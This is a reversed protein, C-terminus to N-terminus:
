IDNHMSLFLYFYMFIFNRALRWHLIIFCAKTQLFLYFISFWLPLFSNAWTISQMSNWYCTRRRWKHSSWWYTHWWYGKRTCWVAWTICTASFVCGLKTELIVIENLTKRLRYHKSKLVCLLCFVGWWM